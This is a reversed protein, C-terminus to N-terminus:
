KKDLECYKKELGENKNELENIYKDVDEKFCVEVSGNNLMNPFFPTEGQKRTRIDSKKM